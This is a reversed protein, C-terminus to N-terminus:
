GEKNAANKYNGAIARIVGFKNPWSFVASLHTVVFTIWPVIWVASDAFAKTASWATEAASITNKIQEPSPMDM